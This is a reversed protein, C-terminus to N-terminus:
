PERRLCSIMASQGYNIYYCDAGDDFSFKTILNNMQTRSVEHSPVDARIQPACSAAGMILAVLVTIRIM